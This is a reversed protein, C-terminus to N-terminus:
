NIVGPNKIVKVKVVNCDQLEMPKCGETIQRGIADDRLLNVVEEIDFGKLNEVEQFMIQRVAKVDNRKAYCTKKTDGKPRRTTAMIEFRLKYGDVLDVDCVAEILTHWRKPIEAKKDSTLKMGNFVSHCEKGRVENVIFKYKKYIKGGFANEHVEFTRNLLRRSLINASGHPKVITQGAPTSSIYPPTFLNFTEKKHHQGTKTTKKKGRKLHANTAEIAM